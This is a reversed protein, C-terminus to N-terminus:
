LIQAIDHIDTKTNTRSQKTTTLVNTEYPEHLHNQSTSKFYQATQIVAIHVLRMETALTM